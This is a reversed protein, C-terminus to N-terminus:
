VFEKENIIGNNGILAKIKIKDKEIQKRINYINDKKFIYGEYIMNINFKEFQTYKEINKKYNTSLEIQYNNINIGNFLKSKINIKNSLNIIIANRNITYKNILEEDFDINIIINSKYLSKKKNNSIEIAIGKELYLTNEINKFKDINNTVIKIKKLNDALNNINYLNIDKNNNVLITVELNYLNTKKKEAIYSLVDLLIYNYLWKGDLININNQIFVEKLKEDNYLRNSLVANFKNTTNNFKCNIKKILKQVKNKTAKEKFPLIILSKNDIIEITIINFINKINYIIQKFFKNIKKYGQPVVEDIDDVNKIFINEMFCWM